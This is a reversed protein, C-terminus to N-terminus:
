TRNALAERALTFQTEAEASDLKNEADYRDTAFEWGQGEQGYQDTLHDAYSKGGPMGTYSRIEEERRPVDNIKRPPGEYLRHSASRETM